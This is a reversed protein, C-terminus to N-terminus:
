PDHVQRRGETDVYEFGREIRILTGESFKIDVAFPQLTVSSVENAELFALDETVPFRYM